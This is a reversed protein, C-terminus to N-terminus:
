KLEDGQVGVEYSAVICSNENTKDELPREILFSHGDEIAIARVDVLDEIKVSQLKFQDRTSEVLEVAQEHGFNGTVYWLQRGSMLWNKQKAQFDEFTYNELYERMQSQEVAVNVMLTEFLAFTQQYSQEYYFNKWDMLLKEKVQDFVERLQDTKDENKMSLLRQISEELYAPMSDNFGSWSFNINDYMPTVQFSLNACNAMYNFERLFEDQIHAWLNVFVRSELTTGLECDNTYIKMSIESKPRDFKDDKKYWLDTDDWQKLLIPKASYEENKPLIDFNKPVM